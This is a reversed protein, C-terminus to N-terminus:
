SRAHEAIEQMNLSVFGYTKNLEHFHEFLTDLQEFHLETNQTFNHPHWWLHYIQKLKAAKTMEDKIRKMKQDEFGWKTSIPRLFRSAPINIIKKKARIDNLTYGTTKVIPYYADVLRKGKRFFSETQFTSNSWVASRQNGRFATYDKAQCKEIFEPNIQNRPFVISTMEIGLLKEITRMKRLDAEFVEKTIGEELCYLHSFTHSALEQFRTAKIKKLEELACCIDKPIGKFKDAELPFPSYDTNKYPIAKLEQDLIDQFNPHALLGVFAWTAHIRNSEFVELLQYVVDRVNSLETEKSQWDTIDHIGWYKEFDLSICFIGKDM